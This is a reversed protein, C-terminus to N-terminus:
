GAKEVLTILTELQDLDMNLERLKAVFFRFSELNGAQKKHESLAMVLLGLSNTATKTTTAPLIPAQKNQKGVWNTLVGRVAQDQPISGREYTRYTSPSLNLQNALADQSLGARLRAARLHSSVEWKQKTAM